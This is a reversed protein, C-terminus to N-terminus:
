CFFFYMKGVESREEVCDKMMEEILELVKKVYECLGMIKLCLLM